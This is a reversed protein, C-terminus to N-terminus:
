RQLLWRELERAFAQRDSASFTAPGDTQVGSSRLTEMFNRLELQGRVNDRTYREGRPNLAEAGKEVVAAALPIDATVVLEGGTVHAIVYDDAGDFGRAVRILKIWPSIPIALAKNAVLILTTATREAARFLMQKVPVPCADADVWIQPVALTPMPVRAPPACISGQADTVKKLLCPLHAWASGAHARPSIRQISRGRQNHAASSRSALVM